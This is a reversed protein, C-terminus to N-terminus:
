ASRRLRWAQESPFRKAWEATAFFRTGEADPPAQIEWFREVVFGTEAFLRFWESVTLSFEVSPDDGDAWEIRHQGFYPRRAVDGTVGDATRPIFVDAWSGTGLFVLIGGPRLLRHVEPIWVYPDSWIAAGYESLALDFSADPRPVAEAVGHVFDIEYGHEAALRRATALQNESPDIATVRAGRRHMWASGYGTGCGLEIADAGALDDPLLPLASNPIGWIGWSAEGVWNREGAEVWEAAHRDWHARNVEAYDPFGAETNTM